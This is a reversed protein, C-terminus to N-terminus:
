VANHLANGPTTSSTSHAAAAPRPTPTADEPPGSFIRCLRCIDPVPSPIRICEGGRMCSTVIPPQLALIHTEDIMSAVLPPRCSSQPRLDRQCGSLDGAAFSSCARHLPNRWNQTAACRRMCLELTSQQLIEGTKVAQRRRVPSALRNLGSNTTLAFSTAAPLGAGSTYRSHRRRRPQV